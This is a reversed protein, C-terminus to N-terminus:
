TFSFLKIVQHVPDKFRNTEKTALSNEPADDHLPIISAKIPRSSPRGIKNPAAWDKIQWHLEISANSGCRKVKGQRQLTELRKRVSCRLIAFEPMSFPENVHARLYLALQTTSLSEGGAQRLAQFISRTVHGHEFLRGVDRTKVPPIINPDLPIEHLRITQDIAELDRILAEVHLQELEIKERLRTQAKQIEGQLRARRNILWKLSAPIRVTM